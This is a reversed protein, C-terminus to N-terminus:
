PAAAPPHTSEPPLNPASATTPRAFCAAEAKNLTAQREELGKTSLEVIRKAQKVAEKAKEHDSEARALTVYLSLPAPNARSIAAKARAVAQATSTEARAIQSPVGTQLTPIMDEKCNDITITRRQWRNVNLILFDALEHQYTAFSLMCLCGVRTGIGDMRPLDALRRVTANPFMVDWARHFEAYHAMAAKMQEPSVAAPRSSDKSLDAEALAPYFRLLLSGWFAVIHEAYHRSATPYLQQQYRKWARTVIQLTDLNPGFEPISKNGADAFLAETIFALRGIAFVDSKDDGTDVMRAYIGRARVLPKKNRDDETVPRRLSRTTKMALEETVLGFVQAVKADHPHNLFFNEAVSQITEICDVNVALRELFDIAAQRTLSPYPETSLKNIKDVSAQIARWAATRVRIFDEDVAVDGATPRRPWGTKLDPELEVPVAERRLLRCQDTRTFWGWGIESRALALADVLDLDFSKGFFRAMAASGGYREATDTIMAHAAAIRKDNTDNPYEPYTTTEGGGGANGDEDQDEAFTSKSALNAPLALRRAFEMEAIAVLRQCDVPLKGKALHRYWPIDRAHDIYVQALKFERRLLALHARVAHAWCGSVADNEAQEAARFAEGRLEATIEPDSTVSRTAAGEERVRRYFYLAATAPDAVSTVAEAIRTMHKTMELQFTDNNLVLRSTLRRQSRGRQVDATLRLCLYQKEPPKAAPRPEPIAEICDPDKTRPCGPHFCTLALRVEGQGFGLLSGLPTLIQEQVNLSFVESKIVVNPPNLVAEFAPDRDGKVVTRMREIENILTRSLEPNIWSEGKLQAPLDMVTIVLPPSYVLKGAWALALLGMSLFLVLLYHKLVELPSAVKPIFVGRFAWVFTEWLRRYLATVMAGIFTVGAWLASGANLAQAVIAAGIAELREKIMNAGAERVRATAACVTGAGVM